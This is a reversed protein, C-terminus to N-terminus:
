SSVPLPMSALSGGGAQLHRYIYVVTRGCSFDHNQVLSLIGAAIKRGGPVGPEIENAYDEAETCVLRLDLVPLGHAIAERLICDNFINLATTTLRQTLPDPFRPDYVTCLALPQRLALLASLMRRYNQCFEARLTALQGVADGISRAPRQLVDARSLGDNGGVSVILHTASTPIKTIQDIVNTTVSGDVALLTAQWDQPLICRLQKIVDPAGNVYAANDFISDGLLVIHKMAQRAMSSALPSERRSSVRRQHSRGFRGDAVAPEVARLRTRDM